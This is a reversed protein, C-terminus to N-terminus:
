GTVLEGDVDDADDDDDGNYFDDDDFGDNADYDDEHDHQANFYTSTEQERERDVIVERM